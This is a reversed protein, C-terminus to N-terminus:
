DNACTMGTAWCTSCAAHTLPFARTSDALTDGMRGGPEDVLLPCVFVGRSTVARCSGCQLRHPDFAEPPLTALAPLPAAHGPRTVERGLTFLPLLKLRAAAIGEALLAARARTALEAADVHVPRTLTVIPSLGAACLSRLGAMTRGWSGAGRFADHTAADTGDLSVRLELSYRARRTWRALWEVRAPTLLTGNTLITVPAVALTDGVIAELEPNLFPEGGTLYIERVGMGAAEAVRAAVEARSMLAHRTADPGCSVFCHTCSLNCLTGAVQIWLTDLGLFPQEPCGGANTTLARPSGTSSRGEDDGPGNTLGPGIGLANAPLSSQRTM